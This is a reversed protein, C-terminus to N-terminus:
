QPLTDPQNVRFAPKELYTFWRWLYEMPGYEYRALWWHSWQVQLAFFALALPVHLARAQLDSALGLGYGYCIVTWVLSQSLYNTLAMQGAPALWRLLRFRNGYLTILGIYTLALIPGGLLLSVLYALVNWNFPTLERSLLAGWFGLFLGVILGWSITRKWWNRHTEVHSLRGSRLLWSGILFYSIIFFMSALETALHGTWEMWNQKVLELYSGQKQAAFSAALLEIERGKEASISPGPGKFEPKLELIINSVTGIVLPFFLFFLGWKPLRSVPTKRFLLLLFTGTVAYLFLIDGTWIFVAHASGIFGLFLLRRMMIHGFKLGKSTTRDVLLSFSVGFLISFIVYFRGEVLARLVIEVGANLPDGPLKHHVIDNSVPNVFSKFNILLIGLLALGRIIDLPLLRDSSNQSATSM